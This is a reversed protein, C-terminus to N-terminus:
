RGKFRTEAPSAGEPLSVEGTKRDILINNGAMEIDGRSLVAPSGEIVYKGVAREWELREGRAQLSQDGEEYQVSVDERATAKNLRNRQRDQDYLFFLTLQQSQLRRKGDIVEVDGRAIVHDLQGSSSFVASARESSLKWSDEGPSMFIVNGEAELYRLQRNEELDLRLRDSGLNTQSFVAQVDGKFVAQLEEMDVLMSETWEIHDDPRGERQVTLVGASESEMSEKEPRGKLHQTELKWTSVDERADPDNEQQQNVENNDGRDANDELAAPLPAPMDSVVLVVNNEAILETPYMGADLLVVLKEAELDRGPQSSSVNGYFEAKDVGDWEMHDTWELKLVSLYGGPADDSNRELKMRGEAPSILKNNDLFLHFKRSQFTQGPETIVVWGDGNENFVTVKQKEAEWLLNEAVVKREKEAYEVNGRAQLSLFTLPEGGFDVEMYDCKLGADGQMAIVNKDFRAKDAEDYVMGGEWDISIPDHASFFTPDFPEEQTRDQADEERNSNNKQTRDQADEERNSNNKGWFLQGEGHVRLRNNLRYFDMDKGTIESHGVILRAPEGYLKGIQTFNEWELKEGYARRNGFAFSVNGVADVRRIEVNGADGDQEVTLELEDSELERDTSCVVVNKEYNVKQILHSYVMNGDSKITITQHQEENDDPNSSPGDANMDAPADSAFFHESVRYIVTETAGGIIVKQMALDAELGNGKVNLSVWEGEEESFDYRNMEVEQNSLLLQSESDYRISESYLDFDPGATKVSNKMRIRKNEADLVAKKATLRIEIKEVKQDDEEGEEDEEDQEDQEDQPQSEVTLVVKPDAIEYTNNELMVAKSGTVLTHGNDESTQLQRSFDEITFQIDNNSKAYAEPLNNFFSEFSDPSFVLSFSQFLSIAALLLGVKFSSNRHHHKDM